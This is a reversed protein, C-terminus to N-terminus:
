RAAPLRAARRPRFSLHAPRLSPATRVLPFTTPRLLRERRHDRRAGHSPPPRARSDARLNLPAAPWARRGRSSSTALPKRPRLRAIGAAPIRPPARVRRLRRSFRLLRAGRRPRFLIAFGNSSHAPRFSSATRVLPFTTPRLLRERRHSRPGGHSPRFRARGGARLNLPAAPWARRGFAKAAPIRPPARFRRPRKSFRLLRAARKRALAIPLSLPWLRPPPGRPPPCPAARCPCRAGGGAGPAPTLCLREQLDRSSAPARPNM